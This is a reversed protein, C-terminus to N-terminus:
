PKAFRHCMLAALIGSLGFLLAVGLLGTDVRGGTLMLGVVVGWAVSAAGGILGMAWYHRARQVTAYILGTALSAPLGIPVGLLTSYLFATPVSAFSSLEFYGSAIASGASVVVLLAITAAGGIAGGLVVFLVVRKAQNM